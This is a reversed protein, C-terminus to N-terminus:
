SVHAPAQAPRLVERTAPANILGTGLGELAAAGVVYDPTLKAYITETTENPLDGTRQAYCCSATTGANLASAM